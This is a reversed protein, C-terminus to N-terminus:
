AFMAKGTKRKRRKEPPLQLYQQRALRALMAASTWDVKRKSERHEKGFSVGYANPRRRTNYIYWSSRQKGEHTLAREIIADHFSEAAATGERTRGRMDWAIPRKGTAHVFMKQGYEAEWKDVYSEWEQVDSFFAVVPYGEMAMRVHRDVDATPVEGGTEEPDWIGLTFLHGDPIRCGVLASHDDSKSGDFGLALEDGIDAGPVILAGPEACLDWEQPTVWADEAAQIQNLYFRRSDSAATRPDRIEGILREVDLWTSDGRAARLGAALSADDYLNTEAPAETCDYLIGTVRSKGTVMKVYAEYDRQGISDETPNHANTISLVRAAGDRSKAANRDIVAAMKHGDNSSLWHQTENRVVFTARPGELSRPSSTVAELRCRAGHAYILEKGPEIDYERIARESLMAPFLTMTTKTQDQSVAAIQVWSAHHAIAVPEDNSDFGGFRCRGVFENLSLAAAVPDKGWGKMRRLVGNRYLWRGRDDVAYWHLVFLRQEDTFKWDDGADPGDPQLLWEECWDIVDDGLTRNPPPLGEPRTVVPQLV